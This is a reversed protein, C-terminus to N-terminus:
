IGEQFGDDAENETAQESYGCMQWIWSVQHRGEGPHLDYGNTLGCIDEDALPRLEDRWGVQGLLPGLTCLAHYAMCYRTAAAHIKADLTKLCNRARTNAGQGRLFWDKFKLIYAHSQLGQHLDNLLDHAQGERLRFEVMKLARPCVAESTIQSPLFLPVEEPSHPRNTLKSWENRLTSMGPMFLVQIQQWAEIRRM